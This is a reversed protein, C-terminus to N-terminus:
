MNLRNHTNTYNIEEEKGSGRGGGGGKKGRNRGGQRGEEGRGREEGERRAGGGQGWMNSLHESHHLLILVPSHLSGVLAPSYRHVRCHSQVQM